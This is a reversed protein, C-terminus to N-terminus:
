KVLFSIPALQETVLTVEALTLEYQSIDETPLIILPWNYNQKVCQEAVWDNGFLLDKAEEMSVPVVGRTDIKGKYTMQDSMKLVAEEGFESIANGNFRSADVFCLVITQGDEVEDPDVPNGNEDEMYYKENIVLGIVTETVPLTGIFGWVILAILAILLSFIVVLVSPRSVRIYEDLDEQSGEFSYEKESKGNDSYYRKKKGM